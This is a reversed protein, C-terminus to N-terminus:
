LKIGLDVEPTFKKELTELQLGTKIKGKSNKKLTKNKNLMCFFLRTEIIEIIKNTLQKNRFNDDLKAKFIVFFYLLIGHVIEAM